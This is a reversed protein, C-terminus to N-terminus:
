ARVCAHVCACAYICAYAHIYIYQQFLIMHSVSLCVELTNVTQQLQSIMSDKQQLEEELLGQTKCREKLDAIEQLLM